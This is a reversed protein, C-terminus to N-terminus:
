SAYFIKRAKRIIIGKGRLPICINKLLNHFNLTVAVDKKCKLRRKFSIITGNNV